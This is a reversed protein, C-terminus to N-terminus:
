NKTENKVKTIVDSEKIFKVEYNEGDVEVKLPYSASSKVYMVKDGPKLESSIVAGTQKNQYKLNNALVIGMEKGQLIDSEEQLIITGVKEIKVPYVFLRDGTPEYIFDIKGNKLFPNEM